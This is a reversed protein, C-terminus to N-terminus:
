VWAAMTSRREPIPHHPESVDGRFFVDGYVGSLRQVLMSGLSASDTFEPFLSLQEAPLEGSELGCVTLNAVEAPWCLAQLHHTLTTQLTSEQAVATVLNIALTRTSGDLFDLQVNIKRCGALEVALADLHPRLLGLLAEVVPDILGTPPDLQVSLPTFNARVTNRVPRTDHGQAWQHAIRGVLGFRQVVASV